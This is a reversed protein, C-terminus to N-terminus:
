RKLNATKDESINNQKGTFEGVSPIKKDGTAYSELLDLKSPLESEKLKNAITFRAFGKETKTETNNIENIISESALLVQEGNKGHSIANIVGNLNIGLKESIERVLDLKKLVLESNKGESLAKIGVEDLPSLKTSNELITNLNKSDLLAEIRRNRYVDSSKGLINKVADANKLLLEVAESKGNALHELGRISSYERTDEHNGVIKLVGETNDLLMKTNPADILISDVEKCRYNHKIEKLKDKENFLLESNKGNAYLSITGPNINPLKDFNKYIFDANPMTSITKIMDLRRESYKIFAENLNNIPIYIDANTVFKKTIEPNDLMVRSNKSNLLINYCNQLDVNTMSGSFSNAINSALDIDKSRSKQSGSFIKSLLDFM